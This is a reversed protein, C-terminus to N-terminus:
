QATVAAPLAMAQQGGAGGTLLARVMADRIAQQQAARNAAVVPQAIPARSQVADTFKRNQRRTSFDGLRKAAMGVLPLALLDTNDTAYAGGLAGATILAQQMGGGGGLLKGGWRAINGTHTGMVARELLRLEEKSYGGTKREDALLSKLKQRTANNVNGGSYTSGAQLEAQKTLREVAKTRMGAAYNADATALDPSLKRLFGSIEKSADAARKGETTVTGTIPNVADRRVENLSTRFAKIDDVGISGGSAPVESLLEALRATRPSNIAAPGDVTASIRQALKDVAQPPITIGQVQPSRYIAKGADLADQATPLAQQARRALAMEAAAPSLIAAATRAYPEAATGKTIQGATESTLAPIVAQTVVRRGVGAPGAAAAPLFSGFTRAGEGLMTKPKYFEGTVGEVEKQIEESTSGSLARISPLPNYKAVNYATDKIKGVTEPSVGLKDAAASFGASLLSRADGPMGALGITGEALGVGGSKAIDAAYEGASLSPEAAKPQPLSAAIEEVTANQQEPSLQLFGDDVTIKRGGINLTAM